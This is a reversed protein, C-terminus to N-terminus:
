SLQSIGPEDKDEVENWITQRRGDVSSCSFNQIDEPLDTELISNKFELCRFFLDYFRTVFDVMKDSDALIDPALKKRFDLPILRSQFNIVLSYTFIISDPTYIGHDNRIDVQVIRIWDNNRATRNTNSISIKGEVHTSMYFGDDKISMLFPNDATGYQASSKRKETDIFNPSKISIKYDQDCTGIVTNIANLVSLLDFSYEKRFRTFDLNARRTLQLFIDKLFIDGPNECLLYLVRTLEEKLDAQLRNM